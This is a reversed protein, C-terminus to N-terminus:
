WTGSGSPKLYIQTTKRSFMGLIVLFVFSIFFNGFSFANYLPTYFLWGTMYIKLADQVLGRSQFLLGLFYGIGLPFTVLGVLGFDGYFDRIVTYINYHYPLREETEDITSVYGFGMIRNIIRFAPTFTRFGKSFENTESKDLYGDLAYISSWYSAYTDVVENLIPPLPVKVYELTEQPVFMQLDFLGSSRRILRPSVLIVLLLLFLLLKKFTILHGVRYVLLFGILCFIGYLMGIRGFLYLDNFIILLFLLITLPLHRPHPETGFRALSLAFLGYVLSNTYTILPPVIAISQGINEQRIAYANELLYAISGYHKVFIFWTLFTSGGVLITGFLLAKEARVLHVIKIFKLPSFGGLFSGTLLASLYLLGIFFTLPRIDPFSIIVKGAWALLIYVVYFFLIIWFAKWGTRPFGTNFFQTAM